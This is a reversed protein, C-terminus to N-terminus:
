KFKLTICVCTLSAELIPFILIFWNRRSSIQVPCRQYAVESLVIHLNAMTLRTAGPKLVKLWQSSSAFLAKMTRRNNHRQLCVFGNLGNEKVCGVWQRRSRGVDWWLYKRIFGIFFRHIYFYRSNSTEFTVTWKFYSCSISVEFDYLKFNLISCFIYINENKIDHFISQCIYKREIQCYHVEM